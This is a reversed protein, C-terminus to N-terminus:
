HMNQVASKLKYEAVTTKSVTKNVPTKSNQVKGESSQMSFVQGTGTKVVDKGFTKSM